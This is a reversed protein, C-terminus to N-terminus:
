GEKKKWPKKKLYAGMVGADATHITIQSGDKMQLNLQVARPITFTVVDEAKVEITMHPRKDLSILYIADNCLYIFGTRKGLETLFNGQTRLVVEKGTAAIAAAYRKTVLSNYGLLYLALIAFLGGGAVFCMWWLQPNIRLMILYAAFGFLGGALLSIELDDILRKNM